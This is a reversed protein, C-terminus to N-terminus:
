SIIAIDKPLQRILEAIVREGYADNERSGIIGISPLRLLDKNGQYFLACPYNYLNFLKNPYDPDICTLYNKNDELISNPITSYIDRPDHQLYYQLTNEYHYKNLIHVYMLAARQITHPVEQYHQKLIAQTYM